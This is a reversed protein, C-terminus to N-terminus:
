KKVATPFLTKDLSTKPRVILVYRGARSLTHLLRNIPFIWNLKDQEVKIFIYNYNYKLALTRMVNSIQQVTWGKANPRSTIKLGLCINFVEEHTRTGGDTLANLALNGCTNVLAQLLCLNKSNSTDAFPNKIKKWQLPQQQNSM